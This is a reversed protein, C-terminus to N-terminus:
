TVPTETNMQSVVSTSPPGLAITERL